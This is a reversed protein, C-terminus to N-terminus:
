VAREMLGAKGGHGGWHGGEAQMQESVITVGQVEPSQQWPRQRSFIGVMQQRPHAPGSIILSEGPVNASM